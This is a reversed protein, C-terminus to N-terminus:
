YKAGSNVPQKSRAVRKRSIRESASLHAVSDDQPSSISRNQGDVGLQSRQKRRSTISASADKREQEDQERYFAMEAELQSGFGLESWNNSFADFRAQQKGKRVQNIQSQLEPNFQSKTSKSDQRLTPRPKSNLQDIQAQLAPSFMSDQYDTRYQVSDTRNSQRQTLRALIAKIEPNSDILEKLQSILSSDPSNGIGLFTSDIIMDDTRYDSIGLEEIPPDERYSM